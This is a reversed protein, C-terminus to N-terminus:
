DYLQIIQDINKNSYKEEAFTRTNRALNALKEPNDHYYEVAQRINKPIVDILKGVSEDMAEPIAGRNSGIVPTGCALSELIVRGFGEEHTSPIIVIDAASYYLPLNDNDVRGLYNMNQIKSKQNKIEQELPGTGAIYLNIGEDWSKAAELLEPIGKETVLRGVFLVDFGKWGLKDKASKIVRFKELDLWYTFKNVKKRDVGLSIVENKSLEALTLVGDSKNFMTQVLQRYLGHKPFHYINHASIIVRKGFVKGWITGVFGAVVGHSHIVDPNFFLIVFPLALFLGPFTYIFALISNYITKYYLGKIWPLRLIKLNKKSEWVKWRANAVLPRYTLVFVDFKRKVLEGVLDSLHTEVGGTNPPFHVTLQLVKMVTELIGRNKIRTAISGSIDDERFPYRL